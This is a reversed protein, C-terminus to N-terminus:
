NYTGVLLKEIATFILGEDFAELRALGDLIGALRHQGADEFACVVCAAIRRKDRDFYRALSVGMTHADGDMGDPVVTSGAVHQGFMLSSAM